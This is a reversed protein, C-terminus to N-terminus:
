SLRTCSESKLFKEWNKMVARDMFIQLRVPAQKLKIIRENTLPITILINSVRDFMRIRGIIVTMAQQVLLFM